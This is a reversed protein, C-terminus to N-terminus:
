SCMPTWRRVLDVDSIYEDPAHKACELIAALLAPM